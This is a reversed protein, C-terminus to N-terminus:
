KMKEIAKDAAIEREAMNMLTDAASDLNAMIHQWRKDHAIDITGGEIQKSIDKYIETIQLLLDTTTVKPISSTNYPDDDLLSAAKKKSKVM